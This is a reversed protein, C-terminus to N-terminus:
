PALSDAARASDQLRSRARRADARLAAGPMSPAGAAAPLIRTSSRGRGTSGPSPRQEAEGSNATRATSTVWRSRGASSSSSRPSGGLVPGDVSGPQAVGRLSTSIAKACRRSSRASRRQDRDRQQQALVAPRRDERDDDHDRGRQEGGHELDGDAAVARRPLVGDSQQLRLDNGDPWAEDIVAKAPMRITSTSWAPGGSWGAGRPTRRSRAAPPRRRRRGPAAPGASDRAVHDAPASSPAPSPAATARRRCGAAGCGRRSASGSGSTSGDARSPERHDEVRDLDLVDPLEARDDARHGGLGAPRSGVSASCSRRPGRCRCPRPPRPRLAGVQHEDAAAVAGHALDAGLQGAGADRDPDDRGAGAVQQGAVEADREVQAGRDVDGEVALVPGDVQDVTPPSPMSSVWKMTIAPIPKSAAIMSPTLSSM